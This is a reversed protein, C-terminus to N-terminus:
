IVFAVVLWAAAAAQATGSWKSGERAASRWVGAFLLLSYPLHALFAAVGWATPAEGALLLIAAFLSALNVLRGVLVMDLWFVRRLPLDGRWLRRVYRLPAQVPSRLPPAASAQPAVPALAPEPGAALSPPRM